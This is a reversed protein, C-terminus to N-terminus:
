SLLACHLTLLDPSKDGFGRNKAELQRDSIQGPSLDGLASFGRNEVELIPSKPSIRSFKAFNAIKFSFFHNKAYNEALFSAWQGFSFIKKENLIIKKDSM